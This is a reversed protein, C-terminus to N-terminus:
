GLSGAKLTRWAVAGALIVGLGLGAWTWPSTTQIHVVPCADPDPCEDKISVNPHWEFHGPDYLNDFTGGWVGGLEQWIAGTKAYDADPRGKGDKSFPDADVARGLVHWSQCGRAGTIIKGPVSRGQAYLSNQYACSRVGGTARIRLDLGLRSEVLSALKKVKARTEWQLTPLVQHPDQLM